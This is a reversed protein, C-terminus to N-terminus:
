AGPLSLGARRLRDAVADWAVDTPVSEVFAIECGREDITHLAAYLTRAYATSSRPMEIACTAQSERVDHALLAVRVGRKVVEAIQRLVEDRQPAGFAVLRAHPAYHREIMGPSPRPAEGADAHRVVDVYALVGGIVREIADRPIGGLRLLVPRDGTLDIVTSEIGVTTPGGDLVLDVADGLQGIVHAAMTPSVRTFANASPAAIPLGAAALLMRAVPHSPVRVGVSDLGATVADPIVDRKPLVITLPGPWFEAALMEALSPVERVVARVGDLDNVHVILPNYSPRGKATYIRGVATASLANAGLGYVTETPFAVLGGRRLIAAGEEIAAACAEPFAPDAKLVRPRHDYRSM